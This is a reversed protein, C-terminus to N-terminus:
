SGSYEDIRHGSYYSKSGIKLIDHIHQWYLESRIESIHILGTVGQGLEVFPAMLNCGRWLVRWNIGSEWAEGEIDISEMVVGEKPKDKRCRTEVAAITDVVQIPWGDILDFM